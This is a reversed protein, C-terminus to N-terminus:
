RSHNIIIEVIGSVCLVIGISVISIFIIKNSILYQFKNHKKLFYTGILVVVGIVIAQISDGTNMEIM